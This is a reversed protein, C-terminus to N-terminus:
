VHSLLIEALLLDMPTTIKINEPNGKILTVEKGAAEVVSADDTFQKCFPQRYGEKLLVTSFVQPTQVGRYLNRSVAKSKGDPTLERLSDTMEIVPIVAGSREAEEFASSIVKQAVLPRVGDHVAVLGSEPLTDLGNKVSHFRTEGGRVVRHRLTFRYQTCLEDWYSLHAEPLVLILEIEPDYKYFAELTHMLVPRGSILRFQKPIEGGMRSGKGGAVVIVYKKIQLCNNKQMKGAKQM